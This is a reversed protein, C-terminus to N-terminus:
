FILWSTVRLSVFFFCFFYTYDTYHATEEKEDKLSRGKWGEVRGGKMKEDAIPAAAADHPVVM